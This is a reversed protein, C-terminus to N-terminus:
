GQPERSTLHQTIWSNEVLIHVHLDNSAKPRRERKREREADTAAKSWWWPQIDRMSNKKTEKVAKRTECYRTIKLHAKYNSVQLSVTFIERASYPDNTANLSMLSLSSPLSLTHVDTNRFPSIFLRQNTSCEQYSHMLLFQETTVDYTM